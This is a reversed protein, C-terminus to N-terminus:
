FNYTLHWVLSAHVLELPLFIDGQKKPWHRRSCCVQDSSSCRCIVAVDWERCWDFDLRSPQRCALFDGVLTLLDSCLIHLDILLLNCTWVNIIKFPKFNFCNWGKKNLPIHHVLPSSILLSTIIVSSGGCMAVSIFGVMQWSFIIGFFNLVFCLWNWYMQIM